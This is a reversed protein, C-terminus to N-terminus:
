AKPWLGQAKRKRIGAASTGPRTAAGAGGYVAVQPHPCLPRTMEVAGNTVKAADIRAPAQGGERWRDLAGVFDAQDPGVGGGCHAVGPMLFLRMWDDQKGGLRKEVSQYYAITNSPEPGPDAWGHYFRLKGGRAKFRTLDPDTAAITSANTKLILALDADLDFTMPDWKPDQRGMYRFPSYHLELPADPMRMGPEFGRSSGPYITTGNKAKVPAYARSVTEVQAPTLCDPRDGAKCTLTAPNFSCRDPRSIIGDTIGDYADCATVVSKALM